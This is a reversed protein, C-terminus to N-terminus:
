LVTAATVEHPLQSDRGGLSNSSRVAQQERQEQLLRASGGGTGAGAYAEEAATLLRMLEDPLPQGEALARGSNVGGGDGNAQAWVAADIQAADQLPLHAALPGYYDRLQNFALLSAPLLLFTATASYYREYLLQIAALVFQAICLVYCQMQVAEPWALGGGDFGHGQPYPRLVHSLNHSWVPLLLCLWVAVVVVTVPAICGFLTGISTVMMARNYIYEYYLRQGFGVWTPEGTALQLLKDELPRLSRVCRLCCCCCRLCRQLALLLLPLLQLLDLTPAVLLLDQFVLNLFFTSRSPVSEAFVHIIACGGDMLFSDLTNLATTAICSALLVLITNFAWMLRLTRISVLTYSAFGMMEALVGLVGSYLTAMQLLSLTLTAVWGGLTARSSEDLHAITEGLATQNLLRELTDLSVLGQVLAAAGTWLLFLLLTLGWGLLWVLKARGRRVELARWHMDSPHPAACTTTPGGDRSFVPAARACASAARRTRFLVLYSSARTTATALGAVIAEGSSVDAAPPATAGAGGAAAAATSPSSAASAASAAATAAAPPLLAAQLVPFSRDGELTLTYLEPTPLRECLGGGGGGGGRRARTGSTSHVGDSSATAAQRRVPLVAHVEAPWLKRLRVGVEEASLRRKGLQLLVTLAEPRPQALWQHRLRLYAKWEQQLLTFFLGTFLMMFFTPALYRPSGPPLHTISLSELGGWAQKADDPHPTYEQGTGDHLRVANLPLMIPLAVLSLTGFLKLNFRLYRLLMTRDLSSADANTLPASRSGQRLVEWWTYPAWPADGRPSYISRRLSPVRSLVLFALMCCCSITLNISFTIVLGKEQETWWDSPMDYYAGAGGCHWNPPPATPPALGAEQMTLVTDQM